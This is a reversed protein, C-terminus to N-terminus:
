EYQSIFWRCWELKDEVRQGYPQAKSWLELNEIRNDDRQGNKHHITEHDALARGLYEEMIIRHQLVDKGDRTQRLYGKSNRRWRPNVNQRYKVACRACRACGRSKPQGCECALDSYNSDKSYNGKQRAAVCSKCDSRRGGKSLRDAYFDELPKEIRCKSCSKM